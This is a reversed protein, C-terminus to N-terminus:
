EKEPMKMGPHGMGPMAPMGYMPNYGSGMGPMPSYGYAGGYMPNCMDNMGPMPSYGYMGGHMPQYMGGYMPDGCGMDGMPGQPYMGPMQPQMMPCGGYQMMPCWPMPQHMPQPMPQAMPPMMPPTPQSVPPTYEKGPREPKEPMYKRKDEM